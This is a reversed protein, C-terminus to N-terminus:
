MKELKLRALDEYNLFNKVVNKCNKVLLIKEITKKERIKEITKSLNPNNKCNSLHAGKQQHKEFTFSGQCYKCTWSQM